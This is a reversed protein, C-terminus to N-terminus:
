RGAGESPVTTPADVPVLGVLSRTQGRVSAVVEVWRHGALTAGGPTDRLIVQVDQELRPVPLHSQMNALVAEATRVAQRADALRQGAGRERTIAVMLVSLAVALLAIGLVTDAFIIGHPVTGARQSQTGFSSTWRYIMSRRDFVASPSRAVRQAVPTFGSM